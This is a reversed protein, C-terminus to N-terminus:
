EGEDIGDGNPQISKRQIDVADHYQKVISSINDYQRVYIKVGNFNFQIDVCLRSCAENVEAAARDISTGPLFTIGTLIM